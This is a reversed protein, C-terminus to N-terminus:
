YQNSVLLATGQDKGFTNIVRWKGKEPNYEEVAHKSDGEHSEALVLLRNMWGVCQIYEQYKGSPSLESWTDSKFDYREVMTCIGTATRGGVAYLLGKVACMGVSARSEGPPTLEAWTNTQPDYFEFSNSDFDETCGFAYMLGNYVTVGPKNRKSQMPAVVQWKEPSNPDWKEVSLLNEIGNFGGVAYLQGNLEAMGYSFRNGIMPPLESWQKTELDLCDIHNEESGNTVVTCALYLKGNTLIGNTYWGPRPKAPWEECNWTATIPDFIEVKLPSERETGGKILILQGRQNRPKCLEEEFLSARNNPSMHWKLAKMIVVQFEPEQLADSVTNVIFEPSLLPFRLCKLLEMSHSQRNPKDHEIWLMIGRFVDEESQVCLDNRKLLQSLLEFELKLFEHEDIIQFFNQAAYMFAKEFLERFNNERCNVAVSLCNSKDLTKSLFESCESEVTNLQFLSAASMIDHVTEISIEISATYIFNLILKLIDGSMNEIILENAQSEKLKALFYESAASLIVRHASIRFDDKSAILDIDCFRQEEFFLHMKGLAERRHECKIITTKDSPIQKTGMNAM